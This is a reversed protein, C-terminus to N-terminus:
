HDGPPVDNPDFIGGPKNTGKSSDGFPTGDSEPLSYANIWEFFKNIQIQANDAGGIFIGLVVLAVILIVIAVMAVKLGTSLGKRAM